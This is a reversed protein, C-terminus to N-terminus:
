KLKQVGTYIKNLWEMFDEQTDYEGCLTYQYPKREKLHSVCSVFKGDLQLCYIYRETEAHYWKGTTIFSSLEIAKPAFLNARADLVYM